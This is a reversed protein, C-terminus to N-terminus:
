GGRRRSARCVAGSRCRGTLCMTLCASCNMREISSGSGSEVGHGVDLVLAPPFWWPVRTHVLERRDQGLRDDVDGSTTPFRPSPAKLVHRVGVLTWLRQLLDQLVVGVPQDLVSALEHFQHALQPHLGSPGKPSSSASPSLTGAADELSRETSPM